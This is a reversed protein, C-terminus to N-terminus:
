RTELCPVLHESVAQRILPYVSATGALIHGISLAQSGGLFDSVRGGAEEILLIGAAVDWPKLGIEWFGDVRGAALYALDLAAAGARRIGGVRKFIAAFAALYPDLQTRERFPFGTAVLADDLAASKRVQIRRGNLFAGRGAVAEFLEQRVPDLVWGLVPRGRITVAVSVAFFPFSHIFNTTGDLPDIIWTIGDGIPNNHSEEAVITHDPYRRQISRVMLRECERDVDTVFDFAAKAEISLKEPRLLRERILTGAEQLLLRGLRQIALIRDPGLGEDTTGVMEVM